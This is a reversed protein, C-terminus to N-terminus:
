GRAVAELWALRARRWTELRRHYGGRRAEDLVARPDPRHADRLHEPVPPGNWFVRRDRPSPWGTQEYVLAVSLPTVAPDVVPPRRPTRAM